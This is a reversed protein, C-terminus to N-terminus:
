PPIWTAGTMTSATGSWASCIGSSSSPGGAMAPQVAAGAQALLKAHQECVNCDFDNHCVRHKFEGTFEHRCTRSAAPLDHFDSKWRIADTENAKVSRLTRLLSLAVTAIIIAVIAFFTGLFIIQGTGWVFAFMLPVM